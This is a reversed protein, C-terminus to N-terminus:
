HISKDAPPGFRWIAITYGVWLELLFVSISLFLGFFSLLIGFTGAQAVLWVTFFAAFAPNRFKSRYGSGVVLFFLVAAGLAFVWGRNIHRSDAIWFAATGLFAVALAAAILRLVDLVRSEPAEPM